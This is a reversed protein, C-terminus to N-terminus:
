FFKLGERIEVIENRGRTVARTIRANEDWFKDKIDGDIREYSPALVCSEANDGPKM